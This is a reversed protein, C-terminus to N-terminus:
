DFVLRSCKKEIGQNESNQPDHLDYKGKQQIVLYWSNMCSNNKFALDDHFRKMIFVSQKRFPASSANLKKSAM